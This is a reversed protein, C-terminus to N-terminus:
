LDTTQVSPGLSYEGQDSHLQIRQVSQATEGREVDHDVMEGIEHYPLLPKWHLIMGFTGYGKKAMIIILRRCSIQNRQLNQDGTCM